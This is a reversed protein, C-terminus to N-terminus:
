LIGLRGLPWYRVRAIGIMGDRPEVGWIRSDESISRNDGLMLYYGKPITQKQLNTTAQGHTYPENLRVAKKGKDKVFVHGGRAWVTEGPLGIVRKVFTTGALGDRLDLGPSTCVGSSDNHGAKCHPPHFVIIEGRSPSQFDLTVRDALVRDGPELTPVMSPSPVRYPKVVFAQGLWAIAVAIALTIVTDLVTRVPGPLSSFRGMERLNDATPKVRQLQGGGRGTVAAV